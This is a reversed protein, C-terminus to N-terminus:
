QPKKYSIRVTDKDGKNRLTITYKAISDISITRYDEECFAEIEYYSTKTNHTYTQHPTSPPTTPTPPFTPVPPPTDTPPPDAKMIFFSSHSILLMGVAIFIIYIMKNKRKM